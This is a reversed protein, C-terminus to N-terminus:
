GGSRPVARREGGSSSGGSPTSDRSGGGSSSPAASGSNGRPESRGASGSSSSSRDSGRRQPSPVANQSSGGSPNTEVVGRTRSLVASREEVVPPGVIIVRPYDYFGYGFGYGYPRFPDFYSDYYGYRYGFRSYGYGWARAPWPAVNRAAPAAARAPATRMALEADEGGGLVTFREPYTVAVMVDLVDGPVGRDALERLMPADLDFPEGREILLAGAVPAGAREVLEVIADATLRAGARTRATAVALQGGAVPDAVGLEAIRAETAPVFTRIGVLPEADGSRVAQVEVWGFGEPLIALTGSTSRTVGPGCEMDSALYLRRGDASWAATQTGACGDEAIATARGDARMEEETLLSGGAYTEIEVGGVDALPRICVVYSEAAAAEDTVAAGEWCGIWPLWRADAGPIGVQASAPLSVALAVAVGFFASLSRRM